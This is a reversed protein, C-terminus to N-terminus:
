KTEAVFVGSWDAPPAVESFAEVPLAVIIGRMHHMCHEDRRM